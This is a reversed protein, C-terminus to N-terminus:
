QMRAAAALRELHVEGGAFSGDVCKQSRGTRNVYKLLAALDRRAIPGSIDLTAKM